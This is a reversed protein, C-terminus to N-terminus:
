YNANSPDFNVWASNINWDTAAATGFAGKYAANDFFADASLDIAGTLYPSASAQLFTSALTAYGYANANATSPPNKTTFAGFINNINNELTNDTTLTAPITLGAAVTGNQNTNSVFVNGTVTGTVANTWNVSVPFGAIISNHIKIASNSNIEAGARYNADMVSTAGFVMPGLVTVNSFVPMSHRSTGGVTPATASGNSSSEWARSGSIDATNYERVVLGYQVKGNYGRDTDFDDDNTAYTILYKHNVSGGFWEIADDNAYSVMIHDITTASGVSGLTLSNLENDPSLSIGAYEIRVYQLFGSNDNDTSSGAGPGYVGNESGAAVSIGEIKASVDNSNYAKGLIVLGGWDGRNRFGKPAQSTMIIPSTATGKADLTAGRNIILAGDTDKEGFILTGAPITLKAPAIVYVKGRLLYKESASLTKDATINGELIIVPDTVTITYLTAASTLNQADKATIFVNITSGIVANAPINLTVETEVDAIGTITIPSAPTTTAGTVAIASAGNPADVNVTVKVTGGPSGSGANASLEVTPPASVSVNLTATQSTSQGENDTVTLTVSGAGATAGATFEVVVSGEEAAAAGQTKITATGGSSTVESTSFGGPTEFTFTVDTKTGLQVTAVTTPASVSPAAPKPDDEDCSQIVMITAFALFMALLKSMKTM